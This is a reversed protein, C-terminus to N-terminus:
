PTTIPLAGLNDMYDLIDQPSNVDNAGQKKLWNTAPSGLIVFVEIGMAAAHAATSLTGSRRQGEVVLVALSLGAILQNRELFNKKFPPTGPKFTTMLCGHKMIENALKWNEPPYIIDTGHALVAITRGGADLAAQHAATDIGRALGSVITIGNKGLESAFIKATKIGVASAERSGVIAVACRDAESYTGQIFVKLPQDQVMIETRM